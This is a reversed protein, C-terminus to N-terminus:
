GSGSGSRQGAQYQRWQSIIETALHGTDITVQPLPTSAPWYHLLLGASVSGVGASLAAVALWRRFQGARELHVQGALHSWTRVTDTMTEATGSLTKAASAATDRTTKTHLAVQELVACMKNTIDHMSRALEELEAATADALAQAQAQAEREIEQASKFRRATESKTM